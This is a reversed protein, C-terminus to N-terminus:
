RRRTGSRAAEQVNGLGKQVTGKVHEVKGEAELGPDDALKGVGEKIDGKATSVAGKVHEDTM